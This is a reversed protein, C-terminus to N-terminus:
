SWIRTTWSKKKMANEGGSANTAVGRKRTQLIRTMMLSSVKEQRYLKTLLSSAGTGNLPHVERLADEDDDEDEESSDAMADGNTDTRKKKQRERVEGTEEDFDEEDDSGVAASDDFFTAM